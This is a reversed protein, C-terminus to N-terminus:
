QEEGGLRQDDYRQDDYTTTVGNRQLTRKKEYFQM